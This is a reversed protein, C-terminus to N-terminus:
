EVKRSSNLLIKKKVTYMKTYWGDRSGKGEYILEEGKKLNEDNKKTKILGLINLLNLVYVKCGFKDLHVDSRWSKSQLRSYIKNHRLEEM